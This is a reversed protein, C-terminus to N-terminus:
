PASSAGEGDRSAAAEDARGAAGLAPDVLIRSRDSLLWMLACMSILSLCAWPAVEAGCTSSGAAAETASAVECAKIFDVNTFDRRLYANGQDTLTSPSPGSGWPPMDGYGSYVKRLSGLSEDSLHGIPTEWPNKGLNSHDGLSFFLQTTRSNASSGAYSLTGEHFLVAPSPPVDDAIAATGWQRQMTRNGSIGFQAVFGPVVRFFAIDTFFGVSVLELFHAVGLPSWDTRLQIELSGATSACVVLQVAPGNWRASFGDAIPDHRASANGPSPVFSSEPCWGTSSAVGRWTLLAFVLVLAYRVLSRQSRCMAVRKRRRLLEDAASACCVLAVGCISAVRAVDSYLCWLGVQQLALGVAAAVLPLSCRHAQAAPHQDPPVQPDM